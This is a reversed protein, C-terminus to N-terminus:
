EPWGHVPETRKFTTLMDRSEGEPADNARWFAWRERAAQMAQAWGDARGIDKGAELGARFIDEFGRGWTCDEPSEHEYGRVIIEEVGNPAVLMVREAGDDNEQLRLSYGAGLDETTTDNSM